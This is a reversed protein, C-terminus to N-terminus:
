KILDIEIINNDKQIKNEWLKKEERFIDSGKRFNGSSDTQDPYSNISNALPNKRYNKYAKVFQKYGISIKQDQFPNPYIFDYDTNKIGKLEFVHSKSEDEIKVILGPLNKFKYPGDQFPIDKAFWATWKRGGFVTTAKQAKYNLITIYEPYLKWKLDVNEDVFYKTFGIQTIFEIKKSYSIKNVRDNSMKKNPPMLVFGKKKGDFLTSDTIYRNLSFYESKEKNINLLMIESETVNKQTSDPVSIYDYVFQKTQAFSINLVLIFLILLVKKM